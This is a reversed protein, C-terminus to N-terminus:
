GPTFHFWRRDSRVLEFESDQKQKQADREMASVHDRLQTRAAAAETSLTKV